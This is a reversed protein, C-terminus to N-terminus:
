LCFRSGRTNVPGTGTQATHREPHGSYRRVLRQAGARSIRCGNGITLAGKADQSVRGTGRVQCVSCRQGGDEAHGTEQGEFSVAVAERKDVLLHHMAGGISIDVDEPGSEIVEELLYLLSPPAPHPGEGCGPHRWCAGLNCSAVLGGGLVREGVGLTTSASDKRPLPRVLVLWETAWDLLQEVTM